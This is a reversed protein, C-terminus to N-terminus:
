PAVHFKLSYKRQKEDSVNLVYYGQKLGYPQLDLEYLNVGASKVNATGGSEPAAETEIRRGSEDHITCTLKTSAYTEDYRFFIRRDLAEYITAPANEGIRVYKNVRPATYKRVTFRWPETRDIVVGDVSREVQWAYTSGPELAPTGGPFPVVPVAANDVIYIPLESAIASAANGAKLPVLIARAHQGAPVRMGSISWSLNPRVEDITDGDMPWVPDMVLLDEVVLDDCFEDLPSESTAAEVQLCWSYNGGPLQHMMGVSRGIEGGGYSFTRFVLDRASLSTMGQGIAVPQSLFSLVTEGNSSRVDGGLAISTAPGACVISADFLTTPGVVHTNLAATAITVQATTCLPFAALLVQMAWQGIRHENHTDM